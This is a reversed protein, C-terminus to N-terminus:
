FYCFGLHIFDNGTSINTTMYLQCILVMSYKRKLGSVNTGVSDAENLTKLSERRDDSELFQFKIGTITTKVAAKSGSFWLM